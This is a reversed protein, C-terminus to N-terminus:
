QQTEFLHKEYFYSTHGAHYFFHMGKVHLPYLLHRFRIVWLKELSNKKRVFCCKPSFTHYARIRQFKERYIQQALCANRHAQGYMLHMDAHEANSYESMIIACKSIVSVHNVCLGSIVAQKLVNKKRCKASFKSLSYKKKVLIFKCPSFAGIM